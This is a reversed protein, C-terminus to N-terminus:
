KMSDQIVRLANKWAILEIEDDTFGDKHMQHFLNGMQDVSGLELEGGIGDFDSGLAICGIGGIQKMHLMHRSMDTIRSHTNTIDPDLFQPAFNIGSVGGANALAKLMEDTLNRPHPSIARCNSHSAVFPKKSIQLVDWFGGDSLHSVDVLMGLQNMMEVAEKGFSTLGQHMIQPDKSNPFGFCNPFNWTLTILRVGLDYFSQLNELKGGVPRGEEITLFASMKGNRQNELMQKANGAFAIMDSHAELDRMLGDRLCHIYELDTLGQLGAKEWNEVGPLFIAFFQALSEGKKMRCFDISRENQYLSYDKETAFPMLTDCHLDIFKM